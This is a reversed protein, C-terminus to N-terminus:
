AGLRRAEGGGRWLLYSALTVVVALAFVLSLTLTLLISPSPAGVAAAVILVGVVMVPWRALRHTRQWVQDDALTWPTRIGIMFNSRVRALQSGVVAIMAGVLVFVLRTPDLPLTGRTTTILTYVIWGHVVAILALAGIWRTGYPVASAALNERRPEGRALAAFVATLMLAVLPMIALPLYPRGYATAVGHADFSLPVTVPLLRAAALSLGAMAIILIASVILPRRLNM